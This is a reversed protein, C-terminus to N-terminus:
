TRAGGALATTPLFPSAFGIEAYGSGRTQLWDRYSSVLEDRSARFDEVEREGRGALLDLVNPHIEVRPRAARWAFEAFRASRLHPLRLRPIAM